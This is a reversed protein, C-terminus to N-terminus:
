LLKKFILRNNREIKVAVHAFDCDKIIEGTSQEWTFVGIDLTPQTNPFFALNKIKFELISTNQKTTMSFIYQKKSTSDEFLYLQPNLIELSAIATAPLKGTLKFLVELQVPLSEGFVQNDLLSIIIPPSPSLGLIEPKVSKM